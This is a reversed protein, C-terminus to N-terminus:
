EINDKISLPLEKKWYLKINVFRQPVRLDKYLWAFVKINKKFFEKWFKWEDKTIKEYIKIIRSKEDDSLDMNRCVDKVVYHKAPQDSEFMSSEWKKALEEIPPVEPTPEEQM